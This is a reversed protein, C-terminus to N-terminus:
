PPGELGPLEHPLLPRPTIYDPLRLIRTGAPPDLEAYLRRTDGLYAKSLHMPLLIDPKVQRSIINLDSTCLHASRRAKAEDAALFTCEALLLTVGRMLDYIRELNGQTMGADCIYGISAPPGRRCITRYLAEPNDITEVLRNGEKGRWIELPREDRFGNHFRKELERLWPGPLLQADELKHKDIQFAASETVRFILVPIKHDCLEAEVTLYQTQLLIRDRRPRTAVHRSAFGRSGPFEYQEITGPHIEHV